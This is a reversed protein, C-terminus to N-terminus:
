QLVSAMEEDNLIPKIDLDLVDSWDQTWQALHVANDAECVAFGMSGDAAHYRHLMEVGAPPMGGTEIFREQVSNRLECATSWTVLFKM